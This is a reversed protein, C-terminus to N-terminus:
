IQVHRPRGACSQTLMADPALLCAADHVLLQVEAPEDETAWAIEDFLAQQSPPGIEPPCNIVRENILLGTHHGQWAQCGVNDLDAM